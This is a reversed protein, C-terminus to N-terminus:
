GPKNVTQTTPNAVVEQGLVAQGNRIDARPALPIEVGREANCSGPHRLEAGLRRPERMSLVPLGAGSCLASRFPPQLVLVRMLRTILAPRRTLGPLLAVQQYRPIGSCMCRLALHNQERGGLALSVEVRRIGRPM